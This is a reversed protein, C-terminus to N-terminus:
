RTARDVAVALEGLQEPTYIPASRSIHVLHKKGDATIYRPLPWTITFNGAEALVGSGDPHTLAVDDYEIGRHDVVGRVSLVSGDALTRETCTVGAKFESDQCPHLLQTGTSVGIM